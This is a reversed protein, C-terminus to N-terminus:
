VARLIQKARDLAKAAVEKHGDRIILSDIAGRVFEPNLKDIQAITEIVNQRYPKLERILDASHDVRAAAIDFIDRPKISKEFQKSAVLEAIISLAEGLFIAGVAVIKSM